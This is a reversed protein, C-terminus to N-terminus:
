PIIKSFKLFFYTNNMIVLSYLMMVVYLAVPAANTPAWFKTLSQLFYVAVVFTLISFFFYFITGGLLGMKNFAWKAFPNKEIGTANAEPFNRQVAKVNQYTILKDLGVLVVAIILVIYWFNM